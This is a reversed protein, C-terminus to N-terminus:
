AALYHISFLAQADIWYHQPDFRAQRALEHFEEVSYKYSNETHISEGEAFHFSRGAVTVNQARASVLHMEIRGLAENYFARHRFAGLDFDAGLESNIRRLLNLNFKATVGQADNYAADLRQQDKKLDVGVIMAGGPMAVGLAKRLFDGAERPTFNGITSGPFYVVRRRAGHTAESPLQLPVSYDACVATMRVHPFERALMAVSTRLQDGAIDVAVYAAPQVADLLLRTKRASGSGYEIVAANAGVRAALEPAAARLMALETRTLYYEPLDCIADFLVSGAEDYFYKPPLAKARTSLGALVDHLFSGPAPKYDFYAYEADSAM